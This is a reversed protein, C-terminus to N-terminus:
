DDSDDDEPVVKYVEGADYVFVYMEGQPGAVISPIRGPVAINWDQVLGLQGSTRDYKVSRLWMGCFDSFFLKGHHGPMSCGRYVPGVAIACGETHDYQLLPKTLGDSSCDPPRLCLDDGEFNPWGFNQGNTHGPIVNIEERWDFGVDGIFIAGSLPDITFTWPNRLGYAFVEDRGVTGILPNGPPIAYPVGGDVDIRLLKGRLSKLDQSHNFADWQPGGDGLSMYLMGDPGFAIHGGNHFDSTQAVELVITRSAPDAANDDDASVAWEELVVALDSKRAYVIFFRGNAAYDPHFALGLLGQEFAVGVEAGINLFRQDLLTGEADIIRVQGTRQEVIFFRPDGPPSAGYIPANVDDTILQLDLKPTGLVQECAAPTADVAADPIPVAADVVPDDPVRADNVAADDGCAVLAVLLLVRRM